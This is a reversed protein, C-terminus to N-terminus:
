RMKVSPKTLRENTIADLQAGDGHVVRRSLANRVQAIVRARQRRVQRETFNLIQWGENELDNRRFRDDDFAEISRVHIGYGDMELGLMAEPYGWDLEYTRGEFTTVLLHHQAALGAGALLRGLQDEAPSDAVATGLDRRDLAARLSRVGRSHPLRDIVAHLHDLKTARSSLWHEAYRMVLSSPLITCLDVLTRERTTTSMQEVRMIDAPGVTSSRHIILGRRLAVSRSRMTLEVLGSSVNPAGHLVLASRHSLVSNSGCALLGARMRQRDDIPQARSRYVGRHVRELEGRTTLGELQRPTCGLSLAQASTVLGHHRALHDVLSHHM